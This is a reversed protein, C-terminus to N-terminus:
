RAMMRTLWLKDIQIKVTAFGPFTTPRVFWLSKMSRQPESWMERDQLLEPPMHLEVLQDM